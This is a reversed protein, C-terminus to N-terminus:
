ILTLLKLIIVLVTVAIVAWVAIQKLDGELFPARNLVYAVLAGILLVVICFIAVSVM